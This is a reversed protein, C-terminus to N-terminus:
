EIGYSRKVNKNVRAREEKIKDEAAKNKAIIEDFKTPALTNEKKDEKKDEQVLSNIQKLLNKKKDKEFKYASLVIVNNTM